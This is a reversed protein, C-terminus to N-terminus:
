STNYLWHYYEDRFNRRFIFYYGVFVGMASYLLFDWRFTMSMQVIEGVMNEGTLYGSFRNDEGFIGLAALYNQIRMGAAYSIGVCGIWAFLYLYSNKIFWAIVAAGAMLVCSKHFGVAIVSLLIAIPLRNIYTMALIFVSAGMGNRIGNVGYNWFSFMSFVVLLPIYYYSKFIRQMALWLSGVYIFACLLFFTHIDSYQAFWAHLNYFLWDTEWTWTFPDSSRQIEYFGKAYNVTDGFVDAVPRLGM